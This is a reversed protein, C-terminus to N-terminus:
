AENNYTLQTQSLESRGMIDGRRGGPDAVVLGGGGSYIPPSPEPERVIPDIDIPQVIPLDIPDEVIPPTEPRYPRGPTVITDIPIIGIVPSDIPAPPPATELREARRIQILSPSYIDNRNTIPISFQSLNDQVSKQLQVVSFEKPLTQYETSRRKLSKIQNSVCKYLIKDMESKIMSYDYRECDEFTSTALPKGFNSSEIDYYRNDLYYSVSLRFNEFIRDIFSNFSSIGFDRKLTIFFDNGFRNIMFDNISQLYTNTLSDLSKLISTKYHKFEKNLQILNEFEKNTTKNINEDKTKLPLIRIEERSPSIEQIWVKSYESDNGVRNRVFNINVKFIGNTFGIDNLLKEADIALEKQGGGNVINYVYNKADGSKIYSVNRGSKQPLLNNNVDYVSVELVDYKCDGFESIELENKTVIFIDEPAIYKGENDIRNNIEDFNTYKKIAM